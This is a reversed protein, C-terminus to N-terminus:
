GNTPSGSVSTSAVASLAALCIALPATPANVNQDHAWANWERRKQKVGILSCEVCFYLGRAILADAVTFAASIDTSYCPTEGGQTPHEPTAHCPLAYGDRHFDGQCPILGFVKEAVEADLERGAERTEAM